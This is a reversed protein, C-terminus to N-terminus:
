VRRKIVHRHSHPTKRLLDIVFRDRQLIAEESLNMGGLQDAKYVDTGANYIAFGVPTTKTVGEIFHPLKSRLPELYEDDTCFMPLPIPCDIRRKAKVDFMPYNMSNFMDFIFVRRDDFFAHCVGNGQHADLDIYLVTQQQSLLGRHRLDHVALAIDSYICFGEGRDASAHHYGGSLNVALGWQMAEHAALITGM